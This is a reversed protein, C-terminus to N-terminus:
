LSRSLRWSLDKLAHQVLFDPFIFETKLRIIWFDPITFTGHYVLSGYSTFYWNKILMLFLVPKFCKFSELAKISYEFSM